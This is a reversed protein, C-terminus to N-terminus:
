GKIAGGTMGSLLRKQFFIVLLIIPFTVTVSAAMINGWPLEHESGGSMFAIAVPVTRSKDSLTFTLAFLFENWVAIFALLSTSILAPKMMPLFIKFIITMSSAGDLIAAEEIAKPIERMFTSLTWITFPLTFVLYSLSLGKWSNYLSLGRILEFLGSLIAIQPFISVMLFCLLISKRGKFSKRSLAFSAFVGLFLSFLVTMAAVSISNLLNRAFPQDKFIKIYNIFSVHQPTLQTSFIESRNRFSSVIAWYFPFLQFILIILTSILILFKSVIKSNKM